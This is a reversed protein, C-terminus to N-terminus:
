LSGAMLEVVSEVWACELGKARAIERFGIGRRLEPLIRVVELAESVGSPCIGVDCAIVEVSKSRHQAEIEIVQDSTFSFM